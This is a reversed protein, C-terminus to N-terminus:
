KKAAIWLWFEDCEVATHGYIVEQHAARYACDLEGKRRWASAYDDFVEDQLVTEYDRWVVLWCGGGGGVWARFQRCYPHDAELWVQTGGDSAWDFNDNVPETM